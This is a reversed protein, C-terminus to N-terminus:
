SNDPVVLVATDRETGTYISLYNTAGIATANVNGADYDRPEKGEFLVEPEPWEGPHDFIFAADVSRRKLKRAIRQYYYNIIRGSKVDYILSPTSEKVDSINTRSRKWTRGYDTSVIQFQCNAGSECRAVILVKGDGLYVACLETPWDAKPLDKEVVRQEWTRGGDSSVLLGWSHGSEIDKYRGAFWPSVLGVTPIRVPDMVQMPFPDPKLSAIREFRVGDATRYLDHHSGNGWCRVWLLAAGDEGLGIGEAVEGIMPDNVVCTESSWTKGGDDSYKAYVGRSPEDITHASGRSYACILRGGVAQIMPWSNYGIPEHVVSPEVRGAESKGRLQRDAFNLMWNWDYGSIGHTHPRRVYGFNGGIAAESYDDPYDVDPMTERGLFKWVPAAAKCALFEGETDMWRSDTMGEILVPRPAITALFLHQDFTLLKSPDPAYKDYARCYWHSFANIETMVSEGYNRKALCVGGGGCQNPVCVAFREDRAAAILAAKGLRSCGTVVSRKADLEPIREALDLGRSLAWAWAGLSTINDTRSEDRPGWLEFVGTYAFKRQEYPPEEAFSPDPSVECYCASMVAYGRALITQLPFITGPHNQDQQLGRTAASARHNKANPGNRTWATVVPIDPDCVLEHAGRYNLFSIVPVTGKVSTPIWVFWTVCPGSRDAKFYMAYQRRIAYGDCTTKESVLDTVLAEQQPPEVGYMEKAFLELIEKRRRQWDSANKVKTGDFFTLPDELTYPAIRSKDYNVEVKIGNYDNTVVSSVKSAGSCISAAAGAILASLILRSM